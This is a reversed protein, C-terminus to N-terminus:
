DEKGEVSLKLWCMQSNLQWQLKTSLWQTLSNYCEVNALNSNAACDVAVHLLLIVNTTNSWSTAHSWMCSHLNSSVPGVLHSVTDRPWHKRVGWFFTSCEGQITALRHCCMDKFHWCVSVCHCLTVDGFVQIRLLVWMSDEYRSHRNGLM